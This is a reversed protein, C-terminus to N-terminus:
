GLNLGQNVVATRRSEFIEAGVQLYWQFVIMSLLAESVSMIRRAMSASTRASSFLRSFALASARFCGGENVRGSGGFDPKKGTQSRIIQLKNRSEGECANPLSDQLHRSM